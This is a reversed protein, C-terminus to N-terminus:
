RRHPESLLAGAQQVVPGLEFRPKAGWLLHEVLLIYLINYTQEILIFYIFLTAAHWWVKIIQQVTYVVTYVVTDMYNYTNFIITDIFIKETKDKM